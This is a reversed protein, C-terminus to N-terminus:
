FLKWIDKVIINRITFNKGRWWNDGKEILILSRDRVVEVFVM